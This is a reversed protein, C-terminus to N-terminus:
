PLANRADVFQQLPAKARELMEVLSEAVKALELITMLEQTAPMDPYRAKTDAKYKAIQALEYNLLLASIAEELQEITM